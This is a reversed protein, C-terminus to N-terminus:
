WKYYWYINHHEESKTSLLDIPDVDKYRRASLDNSTREMYIDKMKALTNTEDPDMPYCSSIIPRDTPFVPLSGKTDIYRKYNETILKELPERICIEIGKPLWVEYLGRYQYSGTSRLLIYGMDKMVIEVSGQFPPLIYRVLDKKNCAINKIGCYNKLPHKSDPLTCEHFVELAKDINKFESSKGPIYKVIQNITGKPPVLYFIGGVTYCAGNETGKFSTYHKMKIKKNDFLETKRIQQLWSKSITNELYINNIDESYGPLDYIEKGNIDFAQLNRTMNPVHYVGASNNKMHHQINEVTYDNNTVINGKKDFIIKKGVYKMILANILSSKGANANGMLYTKSKLMSYLTEINWKKLSSIIVGKNSIINLHYKLFDKLFLSANKQLISKTPIVQDAKTLVLEVNHKKDQLLRSNLGLPFEPFSVLHLINSQDPINSMIENFTYKEFDEINYKNQHLADNCRKCIPPSEVKKVRDRESGDNLKQINQSFLLYKIRDVSPKQIEEAESKKTFYGKKHSDKNQLEVGCSNCNIFRKWISGSILSIKRTSCRMLM